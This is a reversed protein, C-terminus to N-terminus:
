PDVGTFGAPGDGARELHKRGLADLAGFAFV